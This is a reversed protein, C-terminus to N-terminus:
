VRAEIGMGRRRYDAEDRFLYSNYFPEGSIADAGVARCGIKWGPDDLPPMGNVCQREMAESLADSRIGCKPGTLVGGEEGPYGSQPSGVFFHAWPEGHPHPWVMFFWGSPHSGGHSHGPRYWEPAVVSLLETGAAEAETLTQVKGGAALKARSNKQEVRPETLFRVAERVTLGAVHQRNALRERNADLRLYVRATREPIGCRDRVFSEWEGHAIGRRAEALLRGCEMAHEIATRAAGSAAEHERRIAGEIGAEAALATIGM